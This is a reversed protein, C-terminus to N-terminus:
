LRGSVLKDSKQFCWNEFSPGAVGAVVRLGLLTVTRNGSESDAGLCGAWVLSRRRPDGPSPM